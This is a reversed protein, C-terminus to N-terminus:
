VSLYSEIGDDFRAVRRYVKGRKDKRRGETSDHKKKRCGFTTEAKYVGSGSGTKEERWSLPGEKPKIASKVKVLASFGSKL